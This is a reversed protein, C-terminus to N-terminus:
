GTDPTFLLKIEAFHNREKIKREKKKLPWVWPVHFKRLGPVSDSGCSLVVGYHLLVQDNLGSRWAPSQVQEQATVKVLQMVTPIGQLIIEKKRKKFWQGQPM